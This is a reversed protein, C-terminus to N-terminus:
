FQRTNQSRESCQDVIQESFIHFNVWLSNAFLAIQSFLACTLKGDDLTAKQKRSRTWYQTSNTRSFKFFLFHFEWLLRGCM